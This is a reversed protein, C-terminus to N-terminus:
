VMKVRQKIIEIYKKDKEILICNRNENKCVVGTTGSGAFCDLITDNVKSGTTIIRRYLEIPKQAPHVKGEKFNTQPTAIDWVNQQIDNFELFNLKEVNKGYLYFIPEYNFRYAKRNFLATNNRKVWILAGYFTFDYFNHSKLINYLEFMYDFGFSIYIRGTNKKIKPMVVNIWDETFRFYDDTSEFTDWEENLVYYPPDTCLMDISNDDINKVQDFLDGELLKINSPM